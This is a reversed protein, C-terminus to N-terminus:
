KLVMNVQNFQHSVALTMLEYMMQNQTANMLEEEPSVNNGNNKSQTLYDLVRRPKVDKYDQPRHFPIHKEHTMIGQMKGKVAEESTLARKLEAEFNVDSRKFNPTEVNAINNAIVERRILSVDMSRHMIDLTKGMSNDLFM